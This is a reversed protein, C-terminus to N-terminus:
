KLLFGFVVCGYICVLFDSVASICGLLHVLPPDGARSTRPPLLYTSFSSFTACQHMQLVPTQPVALIRGCQTMNAYITNAFMSYSSTIRITFLHMLLQIPLDLCILIHRSIALPLSLHLWYCLSLSSIGMICAIIPNRIMHSYAQLPLLRPCM